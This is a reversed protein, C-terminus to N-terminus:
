GTRCFPALCVFCRAVLSPLLHHESEAALHTGEGREGRMHTHTAHAGVGEGGEKRGGGGGRVGTHPMTTACLHAQLLVAFTYAQLLVAFSVDSTLYDM